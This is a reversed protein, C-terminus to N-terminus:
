VFMVRITLRTSDVFRLINCLFLVTVFSFKSNFVVQRDRIAHVTITDYLLANPVSIGDDNKAVHVIM